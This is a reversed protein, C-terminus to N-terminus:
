LWVGIYADFNWSGQPFSVGAEPKFAWRNVGLNILKADYYQGTPAIASLSVGVITRRPATKFERASMARNGVVNVSLRFRADALGSRRAEANQEFVKGTVNALSYPLTATVLGLDGFLNFTRGAGAALSGVDAQIDSIPLTSDGVVGGTLWTYGIALFNFGVPSASYSRPEMDQTSARAAALLCCMLAIWAVRTPRTTMPPAARHFDNLNCPRRIGYLIQRRRAVSVVHRSPNLSEGGTELCSPLALSRNSPDNCAAIATPM